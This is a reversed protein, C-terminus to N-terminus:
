AVGENVITLTPNIDQSVPLASVTALRGAILDLKHNMAELQSLELSVLTQPKNFQGHVVELLQNAKWRLHPGDIKLPGDHSHHELLKLIGSWQLYSVFEKAAQLDKSERARKLLTDLRAATERAITFLNVEFSYQAVSNSEQAKPVVLPPNHV